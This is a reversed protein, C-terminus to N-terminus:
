EHTGLACRSHAEMQRLFVPSGSGVVRGWDPNGGSARDSYEM